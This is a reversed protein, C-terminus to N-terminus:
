DGGGMFCESFRPDDENIFKSIERDLLSHLTEGTHRYIWKDQFLIMMLKLKETLAIRAKFGLKSSKKLAM